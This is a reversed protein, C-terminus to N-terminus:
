AKTKGKDKNSPEGGEVEPGTTCNVSRYVVISVCSFHPTVSDSWSSPITVQM